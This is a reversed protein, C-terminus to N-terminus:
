MRLDSDPLGGAPEVISQVHCAGRYFLTVSKELSASYQEGFSPTESASM